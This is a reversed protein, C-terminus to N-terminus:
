IPGAFRRENTKLLGPARNVDCPGFESRGTEDTQRGLGKGDMHERRELRASVGVVNYGHRTRGRSERGRAGQEGPVEVVQGSGKVPRGSLLAEVLQDVM